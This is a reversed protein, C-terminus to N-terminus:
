ALRYVHVPEHHGRVGVEGLDESAFGAERVADYVAKSVLLTSEFRKNLQELRSAMNVVDGIITYERRLDSGITGTVAEGAHLGIGVRTPVIAGSGVEAELRRIIGISANVANRIDNGDSVPAGFVAMFGDGLFKNIIGRHENILETMFNFLYNLFDTIEKPDRGEAFSTFGRIDLFMICVNRMESVPNGKQAILKEVVSPSVHQGFISVITNKEELISLSNFIRGRIIRTVCGAIIGTIIILLGKEIHIGLTTLANGAGGPTGKLLMVSLLCYELGAAAGTVVSLSFKLRLISLAILIFYLFEMPSFLAYHSTMALSALYLVATPISVEVVANAYSSLAPPELNQVLFHNFFRFVIYEYVAMGIAQIVLWTGFQMNFLIRVGLIPLMDPFVLGSVFLWALTALSVGMIILSRIRENRLVERTLEREIFSKSDLRFHDHIFAEITQKKKQAGALWLFVRKVLPEPIIAKVENFERPIM